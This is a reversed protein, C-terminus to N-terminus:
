KTKGEIKDTLYQRENENFLEKHEEFIKKDKKNVIERMIMNKVEEQTLQIKKIEVKRKSAKIEPHEIKEANRHKQVIKELKKSDYVKHEHIMQDVEKIGFLGIKAGMVANELGPAPPNIRNFELKAQNFAEELSSVYQVTLFFTDGIELLM